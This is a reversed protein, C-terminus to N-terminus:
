SLLSVNCFLVKHCSMVFSFDRFDNEEDFGDLMAYSVAQGIGVLLDITKTSTSLQMVTMVAMLTGDKMEPLPVIRTLIDMFELILKVEDSPEIKEVTELYPKIGKSNEKLDKDFTSMQDNACKIFITIFDSADADSFMAYGAALCNCYFNLNKKRDAGDMSAAVRIVFEACRAVEKSDTRSNDEEM